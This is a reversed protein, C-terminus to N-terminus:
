PLPYAIHQALVCRPQFQRPASKRRVQTSLQHVHFLLVLVDSMPPASHGKPRAPATPLSPAAPASGRLRRPVLSRLAVFGRRSPWCRLCFRPTAGNKRLIRVMSLLRCVVAFPSYCREQPLVCLIPVCRDSALRALPSHGLVYRLWGADRRGVFSLVLPRLCASMSTRRIIRGPAMSPVGCACAMSAAAATLPGRGVPVPRSDGRRKDSPFRPTALSFRSYAGTPCTASIPFHVLQDRDRASRLACWGAAGGGLCFRPTAGNKRLYVGHILGDHEARTTRNTRTCHHLLSYRTRRRRDRPQAQRLLTDGRQRAADVGIDFRNGVGVVRQFPRVQDRGVGVDVSRAGPPILDLITQVIQVPWGRGPLAVFPATLM